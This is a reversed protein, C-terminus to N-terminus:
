WRYYRYPDDSAIPTDTYFSHKPKSRLGPTGLIGGNNFNDNVLVVLVNKGPRLDKGSIQHIRNATWYDKPNTKVTVEGLFKGNLWTWSEDDIAGFDLFLQDDPAIGEPAEFELRYWFLGDYGYLDSFQVDFCGPVNTSRWEKGPKFTPKYWGKDRGVNEKDALGIWKDNPLAMSVNGVNGNLMEFFGSKSPAGLNSLLRSALYTNRRVTTRLYFEENDFSWPVLQAMVVVGKGIREIGLARGGVSDVPFADFETEARWHLDSNSIGAFEPTKGLDAVYDSYYKGREIVPNVGVAKLEAASLGLTLVRLGAEVKSRLDAPLKAGPGVVLLDNATLGAPDLDRFSIRLSELLKRGRADGVYWTPRTADPTTKDLRVLARRLIEIGEPDMETRGSLDLQCMMLQGKGEQFEVLPTYELDFGAQLLPRWNGIMPKELPVSVVTGRNGARWVRTNNFGHWNWKPDSYEIPNVTLYPALLTSKGRWDSIKEPAIDSLSFVERLGQENGRLGLRVIQSFPQELIMVKFGDNLRRTLHLPFNVLGNRGIVLMDINALDSDSKVAKVPIEMAKFLAAATGEPDYLGIRSAPKSAAAPVVDIGMADGVTGSAFDFEAKLQLRGAAADAPITFAVPVDARGGPAVEVEGSKSINLEPVSWRYPVKSVQRTDNLIVLSKEVKEGPRFNHGPDTFDGIKGAVFGIEPQLNPKMAEGTTTLKFTAYPNVIPEGGQWLNDLVIGPQKLNKFRDPNLQSPEGSVWSWAVFQDWPLLGSIGRARMHRFNRSVMYNRVRHVDEVRNLHSNGGLQSFFTEKNGKMLKEQHRSLFVKADDSRYADEGLISANFEDVWLCQLGAYRWIFAPGRWSSWSAVHPMGWEVMIVPMTGTKEWNELWDSREQRPAWNLYCNISFVDGLNGSEHHYVPRTTDISKAIKEAIMAQPRNGMKKVYKEPKYDNGIKLPNQDGHYGMANHNMVYMIVGPVNQYQRILHETYQRYRAAQAPDEMKMDFNKVHPLTISTLMGLKSTGTHFPRFYQFTGPAFDYNWGILFNVGFDRATKVLHQIAEDSTKGTDRVHGSVLARLHIKKGNLYFDRGDIWFERFGFEQPLFEDLLKGDPSLLRLKAVYLNEPTDTDWLKPAIWDASWQWRFNDKGNTSFVPSEFSRVKVNGDYIDAALRYSGAKLRAFGTDFTIKKERFSTIVHVDTVAAGVPVANLYVDGALGRNSLESSQSVLRGPAMFLANEEPKASVLMEITQTKGPILKGTLDLTGGPYYFEGAERGDVYVKACSQILDVYMEIRKGSWDSPVTVTRRYWASNLEAPKFKRFLLPNLYFNQDGTMAKPWVGPVKFYGWGSGEAPIKDISEGALVPRFQWLGNLSIQERSPTKVKWADEFSWLQANSSGDPSAQDLNVDEDENVAEVMVDQFEVKGSTGFNAFGLNLAKAGEPVDFYGDCYIWDTTGAGNFVDPWPGVGNKGDTFRMALRGNRWGGGGAKVDTCRMKMTIRILKDKPGVPVPTMLEINSGEVSINVKGNKVSISTGPKNALLGGLPKGTAPDLLLNAKPMETLGKLEMDFFEAKGSKGFIAPEFHIHTAGAPVMYIRSCNIWDTTGKASFVDPWPGVQKGADDTFIMALRANQWSEKGPVVDTARLKLSLSLAKFKPDLKIPRRINKVGDITVNLKGDRAQITVGDKKPWGSADGAPSLLLNGSEAWLVSGAALVAACLFKRM